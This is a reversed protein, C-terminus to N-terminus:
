RCPKWPKAKLALGKEIADRGSSDAGSCFRSPPIHYEVEVVAKRAATWGDYQDCEGYKACQENIASDFTGELQSLQGTDNKLGVSLGQAHAIAALDENFTLQDAATLLFGTDNEYGDVNDFDVADFGAAACKAVRADIIPLLVGTARIDLWREGPWGNSKGKVSAPYESADPRFDEWTGADVYCVAHAGAAHIAAVAATNLTVGNTAYLDVDYVNPRVCSGGVQPVVCLGTNLKGQLQYQWQLGQNPIWMSKGRAAPAMAVLSTGLVVAAVIVGRVGGTM